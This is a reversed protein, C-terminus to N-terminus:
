EGGATRKPRRRLSRRRCADGRPRSAAEAAFASARPAQARHRALRFRLPSPVENPVPHFTVRIGLADLEGMVRRYFSAASMPELRFGRDPAGSTRIVLRHEVFDFAIEFLGGAHDIPSTTLGHADVYLPVQWGHNLWPTLGLRVKGVIQTFLQLTICSDRWAPYDLSPWADSGGDPMSTPQSSYAPSDMATQAEAQANGRM